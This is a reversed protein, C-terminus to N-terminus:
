WSLNTEWGEQLRHETDMGINQGGPGEVGIPGVAQRSLVEQVHMRLITDYPIAPQSDAVQGILNAEALDGENM